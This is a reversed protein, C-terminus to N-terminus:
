RFGAAAIAVALTAQPGANQSDGMIQPKLAVELLSQDVHDGDEMVRMMEMMVVM